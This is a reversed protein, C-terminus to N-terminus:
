GSAMPPVGGEARRSGPVPALEEWRNGDHLWKWLSGDDCVVVLRGAASEPAVAVPRRYQPNDNAVTSEEMM